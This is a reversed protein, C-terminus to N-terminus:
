GDDGIRLPAVDDVSPYSEGTHNPSADDRQLVLEARQKLLAQVEDAIAIRENAVTLLEQQKEQLVQSLYVIGTGVLSLMMMVRVDPHALLARLKNIM